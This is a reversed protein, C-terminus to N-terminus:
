PDRRAVIRASHRRGAADTVEGEECTVVQLPRCLTPLEGPDLLYTASTPGSALGRHVLDLHPKTYTEYVLYGGPEILAAIDPFITRELFNTVLVVGFSAPKFPLLAADAVVGMVIPERRVAARVATASFDLLVVRRGARALPIAHRGSGGALDLLCLDNPLGVAARLAWESPPRNPRAGTAYLEEWREREGM